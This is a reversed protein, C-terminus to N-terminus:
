ADGREDAAAKVLRYIASDPGHQEAASLTTLGQANPVNPDLGQKLLAAVFETLGHSAAVVGIDAQQGPTKKVILEALADPGKNRAAVLEEIEPLGPVTSKRLLDHAAIDSGQIMRKSVTERDLGSMQCYVEIAEEHKRSWLQTLMGIAVPYMDPLPVATTFPEDAERAETTDLPLPILNEGLVEALDTLEPEQSRKRETGKGVPEFDGADPLLQEGENAFYEFGLSARADDIGLLKALDYIIEEAFTPAGGRPHLVENLEEPTTGTLCLPLLVDASGRVRERTEANVSEGFYDPRSNFQDVLDGCRYLWYCAISSDHVFSAIVDAKLTKSLGAALACLKKEDQDETVETYVTVWGNTPPSVYARSPTLKPLAGCVAQTSSNRVHLNTFSAGM